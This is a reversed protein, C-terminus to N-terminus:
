QKFVEVLTDLQLSQKKIKVMTHGDEQNHNELNGLKNEINIILYIMSTCAACKKPDNFHGSIELSTNSYKILPKM